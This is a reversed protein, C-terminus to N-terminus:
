SKCINKILAYEKYYSDTALKQRLRDLHLFTLNNSYRTLVSKRCPTDLVEQLQTNYSILRCIIM